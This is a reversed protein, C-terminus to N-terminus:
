ARSETKAAGRHKPADMPESFTIGHWRNQADLDQATVEMQGLKARIRRKAEDLSEGTKQEREAVADVIATRARNRINTFARELSFGQRSDSESMTRMFRVEASFRGYGDASVIIEKIIRQM